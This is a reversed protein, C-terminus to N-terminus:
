LVAGKLVLLSLLLMQNTWTLKLECAASFQLLQKFQWSDLLIVFFFFNDSYILMAAVAITNSRDLSVSTIACRFVTHATQISLVLMTTWDWTSCCWIDLFVSQVLHLLLAALASLNSLVTNSLNTASGGNDPHEHSFSSIRTVSNAFDTLSLQSLLAAWYSLIMLATWASPLASSDVNSFVWTPFGLSSECLFYFKILFMGPM